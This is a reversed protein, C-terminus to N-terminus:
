EPSWPIPKLFSKLYLPHKPVGYKSLELVHLKHAHRQALMRAVQPGRYLLSKDPSGYAFLILEARDTMALLHKDNDPGIPDSVELLRKQDTARYAFVNGMLMTGFGWSIAYRRGKNITPDDFNPDATSPNMGIMLLIPLSENWVRILEYRYRKCPSIVWDGRVGPPLAIMTKGGPDHAPAPRNFLAIQQVEQKKM